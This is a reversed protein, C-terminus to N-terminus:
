GPMSTVNKRSPRAPVLIILTLVLASGVTLVTLLTRSSPGGFGWGPGGSSDAVVVTAGFEDARPREPVDGGRCGVISVTSVWVGRRKRHFAIYVVKPTGQRM